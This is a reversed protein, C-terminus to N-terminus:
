QIQELHLLVTQGPYLVSPSILHGTLPGWDRLSLLMTGKIPGIGEEGEGTIEYIMHACNRRFSGSANLQGSFMLRGEQEMTYHATLKCDKGAREFCASVIKQSLPPTTQNRIVRSHEVRRVINLNASFNVQKKEDAKPKRPRNVLAVMLTFFGTICAGIVIAVGTTELM